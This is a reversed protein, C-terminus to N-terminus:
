PNVVVAGECRLMGTEIALTQLRTESGLDWQFGDLAQSLYGHSDDLAMLWQPQHLRLLRGSELSVGARLVISQNPQDSSPELREQASLSLSLVQDGICVVSRREALEIAQASQGYYDRLESDVAPMGLLSQWFACMGESLLDSQLSANLEQETFKVEGSVLFSRLLRLPKGRLVQGLNIRVEEASLSIQSLSIGRYVAQQAAVSVGPIYGSLIQRDSGDLQFALGEIHEVQTNLWLRVAMPLVKSKVGLGRALEATIETLRRGESQMQTRLVHLALDGDGLNFWDPQ